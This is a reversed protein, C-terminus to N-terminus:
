NRLKTLHSSESIRHSAVELQHLFHWLSCMCICFSSNLFTFGQKFWKSLVFLALSLHIGPLHWNFWVRLGEISLTQISSFHNHTLSIISASITKINFGARINIAFNLSLHIFLRRYFPPANEICFHVSSDRNLKHFCHVFTTFTKLVIYLLWPFESYFAVAKFIPFFDYPFVNVNWDLRNHQDQWTLLALCRKIIIQLTQQYLIYRHRWLNNKRICDALTFVNSTNHVLNQNLDAGLNPTLWPSYILHWEELFWGHNTSHIHIM